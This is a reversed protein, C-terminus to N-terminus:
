AAKIGAADADFIILVNKSFRGILRIQDETLATGSAAVANRIGAQHLSIVDMYGEVLIARDEDRITQKAQSIGYLVRSKHYVETEPSNIYKAVGEQKGIIRGGFGIVKGMHDQIPFMLRGKFRDYLRDSKDSKGVLGSALLVEETYQNKLAEDKFAEWEDPSIGLQFDDITKQILGREKFYSLGIRKGRESEMLQQHFWKTAFNNLVLLSERLSRAEKSEETEEYELDISYKKALYELAEVYTMGELEMLFTVASGGRGSSFDKFIGKTASVAFSPTKENSWPSLGFFNSGRKKLQVFDGVVEVIDLAAYIEDVKNQPIRKAM